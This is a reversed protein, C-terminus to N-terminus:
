VVDAGREATRLIWVRCEVGARRFAEQAKSAILAAKSPPCFAAMGPGAGSLAAAGGADRAAGLAAQMGPLLPLRYPQHLEDVMVDRLLALDGRRLAEVVLLARGINAAASRLPVREPLVRRAESTSLAIRPLLYAVEWAPIEVRQARRGSVITLGGLLAAAVNDAHGELSAATELLIEPSFPFGLFANGGLVGALVAAASSGLGSGLPIGNHCVIRVGHPLAAGRRAYVRTFARWILNDAGQPLTEAGEGSIEFRVGRGDPVFRTENWLDLALGLSDFGPGLNATTAPIRVTVPATM